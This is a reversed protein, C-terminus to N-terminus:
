SWAVRVRRAEPGVAKSSCRWGIAAIMGRRASDIEARREMYLRVGECLAVELPSRAAGAVLPSSIVWRAGGAWVSAVMPSNNSADGEGVNEGGEGVEVLEGSELEVEEGVGRKLVRM